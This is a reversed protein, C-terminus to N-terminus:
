PRQMEAIESGPRRDAPPQGHLHDAGLLQEGPEQRGGRGFGLPRTEHDVVVECGFRVVRGRGYVEVLGAHLPM